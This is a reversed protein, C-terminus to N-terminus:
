KYLANPKSKCVEELLTAVIALVVPGLILGIIGFVKVGGLVGLLVLVPHIKGRQGIIKPKLINDISSIFLLGYFFLIIAKIIMSSEGNLFGIIAMVISVPLWVAAAGLFPILAAIMAIIGWMLPSSVGLAWFGLGTLTGQVLAIILTGYVVAYTVENLKDTVKKQQAQKMPLLKRIKCTISPADKLFYYTTFLTVFFYLLGTSLSIILEGLKQSATNSLDAVVQKLYNKVNASLLYEHLFGCFFNERECDGFLNGSALKQKTIVYGAQIEGQLAGLLFGAPLALILLILFIVLMSSLSRRKTKKNLWCYLPYFIYALVAATLISNFLPRVVIFAM